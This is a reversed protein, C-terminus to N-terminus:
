QHRGRYYGDRFGEDYHEQWKRGRLEVFRWPPCKFWWVFARWGGVILNLPLPMIVAGPREANYYAIGYGPPIIEGEPLEIRWRIHPIVDERQM